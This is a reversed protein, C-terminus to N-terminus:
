ERMAQMLMAREAERAECPPVTLKSTFYRCCEDEPEHELEGWSVKKYAAGEDDGPRKCANAIALSNSGVIPMRGDLKRFGLVILAALMLAGLLVVFLMPFTSYAAQSKVQNYVYGPAELPKNDHRTINEAAHSYIDIHGMFFSLSILWHMTGSAIMLPLSYRYPLSIFYTSRQKGIPRTVRLGRRRLYYRNWERAQLMSSALGNYLFYATTFIVQPCNVLLVTVILGSLDGLGATINICTLPNTAGFGLSFTTYGVLQNQLESEAFYVLFCGKCLILAGFTITSYWRRLSAGRSWRRPENSELSHRTPPSDPQGLFYAIADGITVLARGEEFLLTWLMAAVKLLNCLIVACLLHLSSQLKCRDSVETAICYDVEFQNGDIGITWADANKTLNQVDCHETYNSCLWNYTTNWIRTSWWMDAQTTYDSINAIIGVNSRNLATNAVLLLPGYGQPSKKGYAAICHANTLNRVNDAGDKLAHVLRAWGELSGLTENVTTSSHPWHTYSDLALENVFEKGALAVDNANASTTKFIVSNYLLYIPLSSTALVMWVLARRKAIGNLLNHFSPVGIQLKMGARHAAEIEKSTPASLCQMTYNSAALLLTSLMNIFLHLAISYRDVTACSGEYIISIGSVRPRTTAVIIALIINATLVVLATAIWCAVGFRWGQLRGAKWTNYRRVRSQFKWLVDSSQSYHQWIGAFAM